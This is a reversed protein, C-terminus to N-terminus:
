KNKGEQMMEDIKDAIQDWKWNIVRSRALGNPIISYAGAGDVYVGFIPVDNNSAMSIEKKVGTASSMSKGVLVIVMNCKKIKEDVIDEWEKQPMSSKASWDQITFPSKSNKSQGIFLEKQDGNHEYDFSVFARPDAM